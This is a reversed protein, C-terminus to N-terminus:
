KGVVFTGVHRASRQEDKMAENGCLDRLQLGPQGSFLDLCDAGPCALQASLSDFIVITADHQHAAHQVSGHVVEDGLCVVIAAELVDHGPAVGEALHTPCTLPSPDHCAQQTRSGASPASQQPSQWGISIPLQLSRQRSSYISRTKHCIRQSVLNLANLTTKIDGPQRAGCSPTSRGRGALSSATASILVQSFVLSTSFTSSFCLSIKPSVPPAMTPSTPGM